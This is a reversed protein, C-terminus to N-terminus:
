PHRGKRCSGACSSPNRASGFVARGHEPLAEIVSTAQSANRNLSRRSRVIHQHLAAQKARGFGRQARENWLARADEHERSRRNALMPRLRQPLAEVFRSTFHLHQDQRIALARLRERLQFFEGLLHYLGAGIALRHQQPQAPAHDAIDARKERRYEHTANRHYLNRRRQQRLDVRRDAPLGPHIELRALIQEAGKM